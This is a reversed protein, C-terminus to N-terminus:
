EPLNMERLLAKFRPDGDLSKLLPDGKVLSMDPDKQVYARQLWQFAKDTQGIYAYSEAVGM